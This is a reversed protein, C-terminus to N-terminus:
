CMEDNDSLPIESVEPESSEADSDVDFQESDSWVSREVEVRYTEVVERKIELSERDVSDDASLVEESDIRRRRTQQQDPSADCSRKVVLKSYDLEVLSLEGPKSFFDPPPGNVACPDFHDILFDADDLGTANMADNWIVSVLSTIWQLECFTCRNSSNTACKPSMICDNATKISKKAEISVQPSTRTSSHSENVTLDMDFRPTNFKRLADNVILSMASGAVRLTNISKGLEFRAKKHKRNSSELEDIKETDIEAAIHYEELQNELAKITDENTSDPNSTIGHFEPEALSLMVPPPTRRKALNSKIEEVDNLCNDLGQSIDRVKQRQFKNIFPTPPTVTPASESFEFFSTPAIVFTPQAPPTMFSPPPPFSETVETEPLTNNTVSEAAAVTASENLSSSSNNSSLSSSNFTQMINKPIRSRKRVIVSNAARDLVKGLILSSSLIGPAKPATDSIFQKLSDREPDIIVMRSKLSDDSFSKSFSVEQKPEVNVEMSVDIVTDMSGTTEADSAVEDNVLSPIELNNSPIKIEINAQSELLENELQRQQEVRCEDWFRKSNRHTAKDVKPNCRISALKFYYRYSEVDKVAQEKNGEFRTFHFKLDEDITNGTRDGTLELVSENKDAHAYDVIKWNSKVDYGNFEPKTDFRRFAEGESRYIAMTDRGIKRVRESNEGHIEAAARRQERIQAGTLYVRNNGSETNHYIQAGHAVQNEVKRLSNIRVGDIYQYKGSRYQPHLYAPRTTIAPNCPHSWELHDPDNASYYAVGYKNIPM